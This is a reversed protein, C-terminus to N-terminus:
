ILKEPYTKAIADMLETNSVDIGRLTEIYNIVICKSPLTRTKTGVADHKVYCRTLEYVTSPIWFDNEHLSM